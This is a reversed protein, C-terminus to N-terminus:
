KVSKASSLPRHVTAKVLHHTLGTSFDTTRVEPTSVRRSRVAYAALNRPPEKDLPAPLIDAGSSSRKAKARKVATKEDSLSVLDLQEERSPPILALPPTLDPNLILETRRLGPQSLPRDTNDPTDQESEYDSTGTDTPELRRQIDRLSYSDLIRGTTGDVYSERVYLGDPGPVLTPAAEVGEATLEVHGGGGSGTVKGVVVVNNRRCCVLAKMKKWTTKSYGFVIFPFLVPWVFKLWTIGTEAEAAILMSGAKQERVETSNRILQIFNLFLYPGHLLLFVLSLTITLKGPELLAELEHFRTIIINKDTYDDVQRSALVRHDHRLQAARYLVFSLATLLALLALSNLIVLLVAYALPNGEAVACFYRAPFMTSRLSGALVPLSFCIGIAWLTALAVSTRLRTMRREYVGGSMLSVMRDASALCLGLLLELAVFGGLSANLQCAVSALESEPWSGAAIFLLSMFMNISVELLNLVALNLLSLHFLSRRLNTSSLITALLLANFVFSSSMMLGLLVASLARLNGAGVETGPEQEVEGLGFDQSAM